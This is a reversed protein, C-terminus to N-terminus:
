YITVKRTARVVLTSLYGDFDIPISNDTEARGGGIWLIIHGDTKRIQHLLPPAGWGAWSHCTQAIDSSLSATHETAATM